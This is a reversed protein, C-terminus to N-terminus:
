HYAANHVLTTGCKSCPVASGAGGACGKSCTYHWVGKPNQAPEPTAAAPSPVTQSSVPSASASGHYAQNHAVPGGCVACNTLTGAGGACGKACTFHWVGQANQAPEETTAAPPLIAPPTDTVELSESADQTQNVSKEKCSYICIVSSLVLIVLIRFYKM